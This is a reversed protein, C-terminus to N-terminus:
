NWRTWRKQEPHPNDIRHRLDNLRPGDYQRVPENSAPDIEGVIVLVRDMPDLVEWKLRPRPAVYPAAVEAARLRDDLAVSPDHMVALLFELALINPDDYAHDAM